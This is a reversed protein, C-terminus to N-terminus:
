GGLIFHSTILLTASHLYQDFGISAFYNHIEKAELFHKNIKSTVRDICFHIIFNIVVFRSIDVVLFQNLIILGFWLVASYLFVHLSLAEWHSSKNNAIWQNQLLFDGIWHLFFLYLALLLM